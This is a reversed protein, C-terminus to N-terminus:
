LFFYFLRSLLCRWSIGSLPFVVWREFIQREETIFGRWRFKPISPIVISGVVRSILLLSILISKLFGLPAWFPNSFNRSSSLFDWPGVMLKWGVPDASWHLLRFIHHHMPRQQQPSFMYWACELELVRLNRQLEAKSVEGATHAM